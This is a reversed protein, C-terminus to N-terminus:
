FQHKRIFAINGKIIKYTQQYSNSTNTLTFYYLGAPLHEMNEQVTVIHDGSGNIQKNSLPRGNMDYISYTYLSEKAEFRLTLIDTVPNNYIIEHLEPEATNLTLTSLYRAAPPSFIGTGMSYQLIVAGNDADYWYYNVVTIGSETLIARVMLADYAGSPLQLNGAGICQLSYTGGFSSATSAWTDTNSSGYQLPFVYEIQPDTYIRIGSTIYTGVREMLTNTLRFYRYAGSPQEQYTYNASPFSSSYPTASKPMMNITLYSGSAAPQLLTFDWTINNGQIATDIVSMDAALLLTYSSYNPLMENANLVIQGFSAHSFTIAFALTITTKM